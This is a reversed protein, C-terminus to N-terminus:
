RQRGTCTEKVALAIQARLRSLQVAKAVAVVDPTAGRPDPIFRQTSEVVWLPTFKQGSPRSSRFSDRRALWEGRYHRYVDGRARCNPTTQQGGDPTMYEWVQSGHRDEGIYVMGPAKARRQFAKPSDYYMRPISQGTGGYVLTLAARADKRVLWGRGRHAHQKIGSVHYVNPDQWSYLNDGAWTYGARLSPNDPLPPADGDGNIIVQGRTFRIRLCDALRQGEWERLTQRTRGWLGELTERAIKRNGRHAHWAAYCRARYDAMSGAPAIYMDHAGPPNTLVLGALGALVAVRVLRPAIKRPSYLILRDDQAVWFLGRGRALLRRFHRPTMSVGALALWGWLADLSVIGRGQADYHRAIAWLRYCGDLGGGLAIVIRTLEPDHRITPSENPTVQPSRQPAAACLRARGPALSAQGQAPADPATGPNPRTNGIITTYQHM